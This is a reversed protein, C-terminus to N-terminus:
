QWNSCLTRHGSENVYGDSLSEGNIYVAGQKIEVKDGPIAVLRKVYDDGGDQPPEFVIVDGREPQHLKYVIKNVM